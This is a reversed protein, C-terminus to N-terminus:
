DRAAVHQSGGGLAAYLAIQAALQARRTQVLQQEASLLERQADLVELYRAAGSDYRLKALRARETQSLLTDSLIRVQEALWRQASLADSVDRFAAEITQEYAVVAQERRVEALTLSARRRGRDFIPLSIQPVVTWARSGSSFLGDIETSATGYTSTLAIRPFFAARAAGVNASAARLRHEAAVIDPRRTLLHSSLGPAIGQSLVFQELRENSPSLDASAGVLLALAHAQVARSQELQSVLTAAQQALVEVQALELKSTAGLDVRRRFIRLSEQRTETTSRALRLREDLERLGLYANATQAVLSLTAARRAEDSALFSELAASELNRVRGWFDLEWNSFGAGLQLQNGVVARGIGSLDAPVRSRAAEMSAALAPVRDARQIGYTARAEAVRLVALRLDRNHDLAQAILDRLRADVFFERWGVTAADQGPVAVDAAAFLEPVPSPPRVLPPALNACAAALLSVVYLPLRGRTSRRRGTRREGFWHTRRQSKRELTVGAGDM